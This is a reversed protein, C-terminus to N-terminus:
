EGEKCLRVLRRRGELSKDVELPGRETQRWQLWLRFVGNRVGVLVVVCELELVVAIRGLAADGDM